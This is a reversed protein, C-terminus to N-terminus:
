VPRAVGFSFLSTASFLHANFATVCTVPGFLPLVIGEHREYAYCSYRANSTGYLEDQVHEWEFGKVRSFRGIREM